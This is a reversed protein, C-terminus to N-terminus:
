FHHFIECINFIVQMKIIKYSQLEKYFWLLDRLGFSSINARM